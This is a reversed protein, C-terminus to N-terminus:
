SKERLISLFKMGLMLKHVITLKLKSKKIQKNIGIAIHYIRYKHLFKVRM